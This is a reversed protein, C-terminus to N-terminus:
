SRAVPLPAIHRMFWYVNFCRPFASLQFSQLTQLGIPPFVACRSTCNTRITSPLAPPVPSCEDLPNCYVYTTYDYYVNQLSQSNWLCFWLRHQLVRVNSGCRCVSQSCNVQDQLCDCFICFFVKFRECTRYTKSFFEDPFSFGGELSSPGRPGFGTSSSGGNLSACVPKDACALSYWLIMLKYTEM